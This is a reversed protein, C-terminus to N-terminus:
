FVDSDSMTIYWNQFNKLNEFPEKLIKIIFFTEQPSIDVSKQNLFNLFNEHNSWLTLSNLNNKKSFSFLRKAIVFLRKKRRVILVVNQALVFFIPNKEVFFFFM